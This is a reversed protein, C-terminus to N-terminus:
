KNKRIILKLCLVISIVFLIAAALLAFYPIMGAMEDYAINGAKTYTGWYGFAALIISIFFIFGAIIKM